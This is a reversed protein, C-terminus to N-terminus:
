LAQRKFRARDSKRWEKILHTEYDLLKISTKFCNVDVDFTMAIENLESNISACIGLSQNQYSRRLEVESPDKPFIANASKLLQVLQDALSIILNQKSAILLELYGPNDQTKVMRMYKTRLPSNRSYVGFSRLCLQFLEDYLKDAQYLVEIKSLTRDGANVSM